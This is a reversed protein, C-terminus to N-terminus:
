FNYKIGLTYIRGPAPLKQQIVYEDGLPSWGWAGVYRAYQEDFVNDIRATLTLNNNIKYSSFIDLTIYSDVKEKYKSLDSEPQGTPPLISPDLYKLYDLNYISGHYLADAGISFDPTFNYTTGLTLKWNPVSPIEKGNTIDNSKIEHHLYSLGGRITLKDFYHEMFLETGIKDVKGINSTVSKDWEDPVLPIKSYLYNSSKTYYVAASLYTNNIFEKLGLEITRTTQSEPNGEFTGIETVSPARFAQVFSLYTSGTESYLYNTALEVSTNNFKKNDKQYWKEPPIVGTLKKYYFDYESFDRRIGQTFQFKNYSIKNLAFLGYNDKKSKLDGKNTSTEADTHHSIDGGLILYSDTLYKFKFQTKIYEKREKYLNKDYKGLKKNFPSTDNHLLNAYVLFEINENIEKRYKGYFDNFEYKKKNISNINKNDMYYPITAALDKSGKSYNYKFELDGDTLLYKGSFRTNLKRIYEDNRFTDSNHQTIGITTLFKDGIMTGYDLNEEFLNNSGIKSSISGYNLEPKPSKTIINIIGGIAGSGYLVGGGNPIVEIKEITEIPIQSISYSDSSGRGISNLPIGDLTVIVNKNAYMPNQGRLDFRIDGGAYEKVSLGPVNRLADVLDKAGTKEIEDKTVVSINSPTDRVNTEFNETSIVSEQLRIQKINEALLSSSIILALLSIKKLM